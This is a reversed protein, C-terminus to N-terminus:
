TGVTAFFLVAGVTSVLTQAALEPVGITGALITLIEYAWWEACIM